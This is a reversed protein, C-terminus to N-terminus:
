VTSKLEEASTYNRTEQVARATYAKNELRKGLEYLRNTAVVISQNSRPLQVPRRAALNEQLLMPPFNHNSSVTFDVSSFLSLHSSGCGLLANVIYELSFSSQVLPLTQERVPTIM